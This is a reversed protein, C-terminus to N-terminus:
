KYLLSIYDALTSHLYIRVHDLQWNIKVKLVNSYSKAKKSMIGKNISKHLRM